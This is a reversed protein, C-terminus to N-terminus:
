YLVQLGVCVVVIPLILAADLLLGYYMHSRQPRLCAYLLLPSVLATTFGQAYIVLKKHEDAGPLEYLLLLISVVSLGAVVAASWSRSLRAAWTRVGQTSDLEVDRVDFVFAFGLIFVWRELLYTPDVNGAMIAPVASCLWVWGTALLPLKLLGLDRARRGALFPLAYLASVAAPIIFALWWKIPLMLGFVLAAIAGFAIQAFLWRQWQHLNQWRLSPYEPLFKWLSYMRHFAYFSLSATFILGGYLWFDAAGSPHTGM